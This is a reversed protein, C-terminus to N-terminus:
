RDNINVNCQDLVLELTFVWPPHQAGGRDQILFKFAPGSLTLVSGSMAETSTFGLSGINSLLQLLCILVTSGSLM